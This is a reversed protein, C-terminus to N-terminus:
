RRNPGAQLSQSNSIHQPAPLLVLCVLHYAIWGVVCPLLAAIATVYRGIAPEVSVVLLGKALLWSLAIWALTQFQTSETAVNSAELALNSVPGPDSALDLTPASPRLPRAIAVLLAVLVAAIAIKSNPETPLQTLIQEFMSRSNALIWAAYKEPHLKLSQLALQQLGRNSRAIDDGFLEKCAPDALRWVTPNFCDVMAQYSSPPQYQPEDARRAIIREALPRADQTLRPLDDEDIWQGTIGILNYGAFSVYGFQEITLWRCTAYGLLPLIAALAVGTATRGIQSWSRRLNWTTLWVALAPLWVILYLYAPRIMLTAFCAFTLGMWPLWRKPDALVSLLCGLSIVAVSIAPADTAVSAGHDWLSKSFLLPVSSCAAAVAPFGFRRLGWALAVVALVMWAWHVIPLASRGLGWETARVICPYGPTRIGGFIGQWSNWDFDLYSRSDPEIRVSWRDTSSLLVGSLAVGAVMLITAVFRNDRHNDHQLRQPHQSIM